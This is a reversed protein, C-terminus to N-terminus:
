NPKQKRQDGSPVSKNWLTVPPPGRKALCWFSAPESLYINKFAQHM